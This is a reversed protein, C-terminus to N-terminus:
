KARQIWENQTKKAHCEVCMATANEKCDPGNNWLPITHDIQFTSVLLSNCASCTWKQDSAIQKKVSENLAGRKIKQKGKLFDEITKGNLGKININNTLYDITNKHTEITNKQSKILDTLSKSELNLRENAEYITELLDQPRSCKVNKLHQHKGQRTSFIKKCTVCQLSSVGKCITMHIDLSKKCSLVKLCKICTNIVDVNKEVVDITQGGIVGINQGNDHTKMGIGDNNKGDVTHSTIKLRKDCANPSSTHLYLNYKRDTEYCCVTCKFRKSSIM